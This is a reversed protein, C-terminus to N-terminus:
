YLRITTYSYVRSSPTGARLTAPSHYKHFRRGGFAAFSSTASRDSNVKQRRIGEPAAASSGAPSRAKPVAEPQFDTSHDTKRSHEKRGKSGKSQEQQEQKAVEQYNEWAKGIIVFKAPHITINLLPGKDPHFKGALRWYEKKVIDYTDTDKVRLVKKYDVKTLDLNNLDFDKFIEMEDKTEM